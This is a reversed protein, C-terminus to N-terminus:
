GQSKLFRKRYGNYRNDPRPNDEVHPQHKDPGVLVPNDDVEESEEPKSGFNTESNDPM